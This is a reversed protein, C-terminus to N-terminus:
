PRPAQTTPTAPAAGQAMTAILTYLTGEQGKDEIHIWLATSDKRMYLDRLGADPQDNMVRWGLPPLMRRYYGVVSDIPWSVVWTSREAGEAGTTDTQRSAAIIPVDPLVNPRPPAPAATGQEDAADPKKTCGGIAALLVLACAARLITSRM